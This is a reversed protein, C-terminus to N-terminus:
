RCDTAAVPGLSAQWASECAAAAENWNGLEVFIHAPMHRAHPADPAIAAYARAAPLALIAHEPDDFAHITYHLAGPHQPNHALVQLTIAGAEMRERLSSPPDYGSTLALAYFTSIEDDEPWRERMRRLADTYTRERLSRQTGDGEAGFLAFAADIFAVEKATLRARLAIAKALAARGSKTDQVAWLTEDHTMAEGWYGMACGPEIRTVAQFEALADDYSFSHLELVGRLFHARANEGCDVPFQIKGLGEARAAKPALAIVFALALSAVSRRELKKWHRKQVGCCLTRLKGRV